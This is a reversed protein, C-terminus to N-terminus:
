GVGRQRWEGRCICCWRGRGGREVGRRARLLELGVGQVTRGNGDKIDEFDDWAKSRKKGRGSRPPINDNARLTGAHDVPAAEHM